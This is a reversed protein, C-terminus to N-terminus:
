RYIKQSITFKAETTLGSKDLRYLTDKLLRFIAKDFYINSTDSFSVKYSIDPMVFKPFNTVEGSSDEPKALEEIRNKIPKAIAEIKPEPQKKYKAFSTLIYTDGSNTWRGESYSHGMCGQDHFIFSGNKNITIESSYFPFDYTWAEYITPQDFTKLAPNQKAIELDNILNNNSHEEKSVCQTM